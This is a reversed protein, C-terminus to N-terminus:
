NKIININANKKRKIMMVVCDESKKLCQKKNIMINKVEAEKLTCVIM